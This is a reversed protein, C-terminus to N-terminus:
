IPRKVKLVPKTQQKKPSFVCDIHPSFMNACFLQTFSNNTLLLATRSGPFVVVQILLSIASFFRWVLSVLPRTKACHLRSKKNKNIKNINININILKRRCAHNVVFVLNIIVLVIIIRAIYDYNVVRINRVFYDICLGKNKKHKDKIFVLEVFFFSKETAFTWLFAIIQISRRSM